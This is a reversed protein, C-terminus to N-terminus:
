CGRTRATWFADPAALKAVVGAWFWLDGSIFDCLGATGGRTEQREVRPTEQREVRPTEQREVRPTEQREVRLSVSAAPFMRCLGPSIRVPCHPTAPETPNSAFLLTPLM